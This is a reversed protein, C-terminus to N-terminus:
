RQLKSEKFLNLFAIQGSDVILRERVFDYTQKTRQDTTSHKHENQDLIGRIKEVKKLLDHDYKNMLGQIRCGSPCKPGQHLLSAFLCNSIPCSAPNCTSPLEQRGLRVWEDTTCFPWERQSACKESRTGHEVPRAGRPDLVTGQANQM